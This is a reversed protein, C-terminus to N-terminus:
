GRPDAGNPHIKGYRGMRKPTNELIRTWVHTGFQVGGKRRPLLSLNANFPTM